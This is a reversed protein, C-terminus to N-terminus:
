REQQPPWTGQPPSGGYGPPPGGGYGPPQGGGYDPPQGGGYGSPPGGGYGPPPAGYTPPGGYGQAAAVQKRSRSRQVLGIILLIIAIVLLVVGVVALIVGIALGGAISKGFAINAGQPELGTAQILVDYRGPESIHFQYIAVGNHGHYQYTVTSKLHRSARTSGGYLTDLVQVKGSPSHLAILPLPVQRISSTVNSAEYYAVYNGANPFDATGRGAAISVRSFNDVKQLGQTFGILGGVVLLVVGVVGFALAVKLPTGGRLRPPVAPPAGYPQGYPTQPYPYPQAQPYPQQPYPQGPQGAPAEYPQGPQGPQDASLAYPQGPEGSQGQEDPQEPQPPQDGSPDTM